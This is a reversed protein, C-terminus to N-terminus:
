EVRNLLQGGVGGDVLAWVGGEFVAHLKKFVGSMNTHEFPQKICQHLPPPLTPIPLYQPDAEVNRLGPPCLSTFVSDTSSFPIVPLYTQASAVPHICLPLDSEWHGKSRDKSSPFCSETLWPITYEGGEHQQDAEPADADDGVSDMVEFEGAQEDLPMQEDEPFGEADDEGEKVFAVCLKTLM